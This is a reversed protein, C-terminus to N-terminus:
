SDFPNLDIGVGGVMRHAQSQIDTNGYATIGFEHRRAMVELYSLIIKFFVDNVVESEESMGIGFLYPSFRRDNIAEILHDVSKTVTRSM